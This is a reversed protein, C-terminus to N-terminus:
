EHLSEEYEEWLQELEGDEPKFWKNAFETFQDFRWIMAPRHTSELIIKAFISLDSNENQKKLLFNYFPCAGDEYLENEGTNFFSDYEGITKQHFGIYMEIADEALDKVSKNQMTAIKTMGILKNM